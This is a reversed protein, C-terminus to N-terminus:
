EIKAVLDEEEKAQKLQHEERRKQWYEPTAVDNDQKGMGTMERQMRAQERVRAQRAPEESAVWEAQFENWRAERDAAFSSVSEDSDSGSVPDSCDNLIAIARDIRRLKPPPFFYGGYYRVKEQLHRQERVLEAMSRKKLSPMIHIHFTKLLFVAIYLINKHMVM